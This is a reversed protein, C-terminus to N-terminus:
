FGDVFGEEFVTRMSESGVSTAMRRQLLYALDELGDLSDDYTIM